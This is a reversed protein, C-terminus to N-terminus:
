TNKNSYTTLIDSFIYFYYMNMGTGYKIMLFFLLVFCNSKKNAINVDACTYTNM